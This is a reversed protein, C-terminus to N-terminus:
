KVSQVSDSELSQTMTESLSKPDNMEFNMKTKNGTKTQTLRQQWFSM